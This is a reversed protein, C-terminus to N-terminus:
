PQPAPRAPSLLSPQRVHFSIAPGTCVPRRSEDLVVVALTHTGRNLNDLTATLAGAPWAAYASGDLLVQIRHNQGPAPSIRLSATVSSVANFTQDNGPEAVVCETYRFPAPPATRPQPAPPVVTGINPPTPLIVREAGPVKTDSYHVVGKDDKWRWAETAVVPLALALLLFSALQRM